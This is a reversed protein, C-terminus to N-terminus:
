ATAHRRFRVEHRRERPLYRFFCFTSTYKHGVFCLLVCNTNKKKTYKILEKLNSGRGSIFVGVNINGTLKKM